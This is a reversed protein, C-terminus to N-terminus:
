NQSIVTPWLRVKELETDLLEAVTLPDENLLDIYRNEPWVESPFLHKAIDLLARYKSPYSKSDGRVTALRM